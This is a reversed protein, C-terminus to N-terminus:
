YHVEHLFLGQAPAGEPAMRRDKGVLLVPVEACELRGVGVAVLAGVINRVMKYLFGSGHFVLVVGGEEPVFRISYITRVPDESASGKNTFTTFDHTGIFYTSAEKMLALDVDYFPKWAYLRRMPLMVPDLFLHYHYTKGIASYQAHFSDPVEEVALLRITAPLLANMSYLFREPALPTDTHFHAIQGRAHVGADTRGSGILRTQHRLVTDLGKKIIQQVSSANNQQQWGHFDTGDYAITLKYNPM